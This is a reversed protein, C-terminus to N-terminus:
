ETAKPPKAFQLNPIGVNEGLVDKISILGIRHEKFKGSLFEPPTLFGSGHKGVGPIHAARVAEACIFVKEYGLKTANVCSDLVCFDFALGVVLLRGDKPIVDHLKKKDPRMVSMIDPPANINEALASCKLSWCGTWPGACTVCETSSKPKWSCHGVREKFYAESYEFGGFSDVEEVFGKFVIEVKSNPSPRPFNTNGGGGKAGFSATSKKRTGVKEAAILADGIAPFFESGVSGQVCHAPFPGGFGTFSCHDHPHYDRTGVVMAGARAFEDILKVIPAVCAGGEPVGFRGGNPADEAPIFDNQMDIILLTDKPSLSLSGWGNDSGTAGVQCGAMKLLEQHEHFLLQKVPPVPASRGPKGVDNASAQACGM